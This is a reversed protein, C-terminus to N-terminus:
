RRAQGLGAPRASRLVPRLRSRLCGSSRGATTPRVHCIARRIGCLGTSAAPWRWCGFTPRSFGSRHLPAASHPRSMIAPAVVLRRFMKTALAPISGAVKRKDSPLSQPVLGNTCPPGSLSSWCATTSGGTRLSVASLRRVSEVDASPRSAICWRPTAYRSSRVPSASAARGVAPMGRGGGSTGGRAASRRGRDLWNSAILGLNPAYAPEVM